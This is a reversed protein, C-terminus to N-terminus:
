SNARMRKEMLEHRRQAAICLTAIPRAELRRIGIEENTEECYGYTGERIRMLADDIKRILKRARDRTKLDVAFFTEEAGQDVFDIERNREKKLQELADQSGRLIQERWALLRGRFYELQRPNMYPEDEAPTYAQLIDAEDNPFLGGM